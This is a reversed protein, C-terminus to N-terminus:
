DINGRQYRGQVSLHGGRDGLRDENCKMTSLLKADMYEHSALKDKEYKHPSTLKYM